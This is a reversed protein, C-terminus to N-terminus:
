RRLFLERDLGEAPGIVGFHIARVHEKLVRQIDAPTVNQLREGLTFAGVENGVAVLEWGLRLAQERVAEQSLYQSTSFTLASARVEAEPLPERILADITDYIVQLAENPKTTSVSVYGMSRKRLLLNSGVAYTLARKSRVELWLKRSLIRLALRTAEHDEEGPSPVRFKGLVYNSPIAKQEISLRDKEEDGALDGVSSVAKFGKPIDALHSEALSTVEEFAISGVAVLLVNQAQFLKKRQAAVDAFELRKLSEETGGPYARYPHGQPYFTTNVLYSVKQQPHDMAKALEVLMLQKNREVDEETYSAAKLAGSILEIGRPLSARLCDVGVMSYDARSRHYPRIGLRNLEDVNDREFRDILTQLFLREVGALEQSVRASVNPFWIQFAAVEGTGLTRVVLETGNALKGRQTRGGAAESTEGAFARKITDPTIGHATITEESALVAAVHNGRLYRHTYARVDDLTVDLVTDPYKLYYETGGVSWWFALAIAFDRAKERSFIEDNIVDRRARDLEQESVSSGEVLAEIEARAVELAKHVNEPSTELSFYIPGVYKQTYYVLSVSTCLGSDVLAKQFRGTPQELARALVDAIVTMRPENTVTPGHWGVLVSVNQVPQTVVRYKSELMPPHNPVTHKLFPDSKREWGGFIKEVLKLAEPSDFSGSLVLAANNPVYFEDQIFAISDRPATRIVARDGIPNKRSFHKSFLGQNVSKRLHTMPNAEWRDYEGLVVKREKKLEEDLFLPTQIADKMFVLGEEILHSPMTFYYRVVENSTSGNWSMGLEDLRKLYTEQDPIAKNAKFFMHEHLHTLGDLEPSEIFSGARIAVEITVLPVGDKRALLVELGNDLFARQIDSAEITEICTGMIFVLISLRQPRLM